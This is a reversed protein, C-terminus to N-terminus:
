VALGFSRDGRRVRRARFNQLCFPLQRDLFDRLPFRFRRLPLADMLFIEPLFPFLEIALVGAHCRASPFFGFPPSFAFPRALAFASPCLRFGGAGCGLVSFSLPRLAEKQARIDPIFAFSVLSFVAFSGFLRILLDNLAHFQLHGM